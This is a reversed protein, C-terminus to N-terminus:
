GDEDEEDQSYSELLDEWTKPDEVYAEFRQVAVKVEKEIANLDGLRQKATDIANRIEEARELEMVLTQGRFSHRIHDPNLNLDNLRTLAWDEDFLILYGGSRGETEWKKAIWSYRERLEKVFQGLERKRLEWLRQHLVEDSIWEELEDPWWAYAKITFQYGDGESRQGRAQKGYHGQEERLAEILDNVEDQRYLGAGSGRRSRQVAGATAIAAVAGLAWWRGDAM